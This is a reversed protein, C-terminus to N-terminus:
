SFADRRAIFDGSEYVPGIVSALAARIGRHIQASLMAKEHAKRAHSDPPQIL